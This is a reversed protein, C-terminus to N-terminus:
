EHVTYMWNRSRRDSITNRCILKVELNIENELISPLVM